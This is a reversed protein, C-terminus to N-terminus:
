IQVIWLRRALTTTSLVFLLFNGRLCPIGCPPTMDGVSKNPNM